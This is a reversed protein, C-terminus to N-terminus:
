LPILAQIVKALAERRQDPKMTVFRQTLLIGYDRETPLNGLKGRIMTYTQRRLLNREVSNLKLNKAFLIAFRAM